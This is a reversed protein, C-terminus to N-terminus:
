RMQQDVQWSSRLCSFLHPRAVYFSVDGTRLTQFNESSLRAKEEATDMTEKPPRGPSSPPHRWLASGTVEGNIGGVTFLCQRALFRGKNVLDQLVGSDPGPSLYVEQAAVHRAQTSCHAQM